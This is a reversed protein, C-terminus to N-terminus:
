VQIENLQTYCNASIHRLVCVMWVRVGLRSSWIFMVKCKCRPWNHFLAFPFYSNRRSDSISMPVSRCLVDQRYYIFSENRSFNIFDDSKSSLTLSLWSANATKLWNVHNIAWYSKIVNMRILHARQTHFHFTHWRHAQHIHFIWTSTIFSVHCDWSIPWSSCNHSACLSWSYQCQLCIHPTHYSIHAYSNKEECSDISRSCSQPGGFRRDLTHHFRLERFPPVPLIKFTIM